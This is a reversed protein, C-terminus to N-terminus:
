TGCMVVTEAKGEMGVMGPAEAVEAAINTMAAAEAAMNM